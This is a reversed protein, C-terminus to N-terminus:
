KRFTPYVCAIDKINKWFYDMSILAAGMAEINPRYDQFDINLQALMEPNVKQKLVIDIPNKFYEYLISVEGAILLKEPNYFKILKACADGLFSGIEFLTSLTLRDDKKAAKFISELSLTNKKSNNHEHM